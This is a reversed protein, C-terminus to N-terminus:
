MMGLLADAVDDDLDDADVDDDVGDGEGDEEMGMTDEVDSMDPELPRTLMYRPETDDEPSGIDAPSYAAQQVPAGKCDAYILGCIYATRGGFLISELRDIIIREEPKDTDLTIKFQKKAM